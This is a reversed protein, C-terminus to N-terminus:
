AFGILARVYQDPLTGSWGRLSKNRKRARRMSSAIGALEWRRGSRKGTPVLYTISPRGPWTGDRKMSNGSPVFSRRGLRAAGRLDADAPRRVRMLPLCLWQAALYRREDGPRGPAGDRHP